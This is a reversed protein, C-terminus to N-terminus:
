HQDTLTVGAISNIVFIVIVSVKGFNGSTSSNLLHASANPCSSLLLLSVSPSSMSLASLKQMSLANVAPSNIKCQM